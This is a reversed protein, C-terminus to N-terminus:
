KTRNNARVKELVKKFAADGQLSSFAPDTVLQSVDTYALAAADNLSMIAQQPNGKKMYYVAALYSCDPNQPDAMKFIRLFSEVRELDGSNIAHNTNLYAILGLFNLLRSNMNSEQQTKAHHIKQQLEAIKVKWWSEDHASFQQALEQQQSMEKQQLQTRLTVANKFNSSASFENLQKKFSSIDTLGNLLRVAGDLLEYAKVLDASSKAALIRKEYDSKLSQIIADNKAQKNEKMANAMMWLLATQFDSAPAWEHKGKFTLVQHTFANQALAADLKEMDSMNFDYDGVMGFYDFKNQFDNNSGPFGAACGIVGAVGGDMIAVSSAVRAGGSFGSTYIRAPDINMRKRTDDMLAQVADNTVPWALGNKSTNSGILVYGYKEALDKYLRIPLAGRAHADFFYICPFKRAPSYYTPLYLAFNQSSQNQCVISDILQGKTWTSDYVPAPMVVSSDTSGASQSSNGSSCSASFMASAIILVSAIIRLM